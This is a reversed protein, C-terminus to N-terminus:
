RRAAAVARVAAGTSLLLVGILILGIIGLQAMPPPDAYLGAELLLPTIVAAANVAPVVELARGRLFGLQTVATATAAFLLAIYPYPTTLQGSLSGGARVLGADGLFIALGICAGAALGYVMGHIRRWRLAALCGAACLLVMGAAAWVLQGDDLQRAGIPHEAGLLALVSTGVVVLAMGLVDTRGMPEGIVKLAYLTLGILGVGTMAAIASPSKSLMLGVSYPLAAGATIALGLLWIFLDRRQPRAFMRRGHLFVGVKQKQVGKGINMMLAALIGFLIGFIFGSDM